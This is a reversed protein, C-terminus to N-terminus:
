CGIKDVVLCLPLALTHGITVKAAISLDIAMGSAVGIM